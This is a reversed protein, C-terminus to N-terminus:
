KSGILKEYQNISNHKKLIKLNIKNQNKLIFDKHHIKHPKKTFAKIRSVAEYSIDLEKYGLANEIISSTEVLNSIKVDIQFHLTNDDNLFRIRFGENEFIKKVKFIGSYEDAYKNIVDFAKFADNKDVLVDIDKGVAYQSPFDKEQYPAEVKTLAYNLNKIKSFINNLDISKQSYNKLVNYVFHTHEHTDGMHILIDPKGQFPKLHKYKKRIFRKIDETVISIHRGDSKVRYKPVPLEIELYCLMKERKNLEELKKVIKWDAISDPEYVKKIMLEFNKDNFTFMNKRVIRINAEILDQIANDFNNKFTSWLILSFIM